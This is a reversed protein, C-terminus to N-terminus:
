QVVFSTFYVESVDQKSGQPTLPQAIQALIEAALKRKGDSSLIESAKKSSLLLLIRSRVQPMYLTIADAQSQSAAQLTMGVQLFQQGDEHQLNVTFPELVLFVPPKVVPKATAAAQATHQGLFYWTAGLGAAVLLIAGVVYMTFKLASPKVVAVPPPLQVVASPAPKSATKSVTKSAATAM